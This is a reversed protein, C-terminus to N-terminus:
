YQIRALFKLENNADMSISADTNIVFTVIKVEGPSMSFEKEVKNSENNHKLLLETTNGGSTVTIASFSFNYGYVKRPEIESAGLFIPEQTGDTALSLKQGEALYVTRIATVGVESSEQYARTYDFTLNLVDFSSSKDATIYYEIVPSEVPATCSNFLLTFLLGSVVLSWIRKM